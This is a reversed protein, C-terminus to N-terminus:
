LYEEVEQCWDMYTLVGEKPSDRFLSLVVKGKRRDEEKKANTPHRFRHEKWKRQNCRHNHNSINTRRTQDTNYGNSKYMSNSSVSADDEELDDEPEGPDTEESDYEFESPEQASLYDDLMATRNPFVPPLCRVQPGPCSRETNSPM